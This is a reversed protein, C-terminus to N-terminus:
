EENIERQIDEHLGQVMQERIINLKEIQLTLIDRTDGTHRKAIQNTLEMLNLLEEGGFVEQRLAANYLSRSKKKGYREILTAKIQTINLEM